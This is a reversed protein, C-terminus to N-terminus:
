GARVPVRILSYPTPPPGPPSRRSVSRLLTNMFNDLEGADMLGNSELVGMALKPIVTLHAKLTRAIALCFADNDELTQIEKVKRFTDFADYYLDYVANIHQNTVVVYPLQQIDRIRHAIRARSM